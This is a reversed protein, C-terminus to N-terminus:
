TVGFVKLADIIIYNVGAFFLEFRLKQDPQVFLVTPNMFIITGSQISSDVQM